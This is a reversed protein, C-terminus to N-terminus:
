EADAEQVSGAAIQAVALNDLEKRTLPELIEIGFEKAWTSKVENTGTAKNKVTRINLFRRSQLFTLICVPIHYGNETAEGFPVFKKVTGLYENAVTIVEGHLDKKKPDMNTIRVRVLKMQEAVMYQRLNMKKGKPSVAIDLPNNSSTTPGDDAAVVAANGAAQAAIAARAEPPDEDDLDDGAGNGGANEKAENEAIKEAIKGRLADAGINNSFSIGMLKARNKLMQIESGDTEQNLDDSM